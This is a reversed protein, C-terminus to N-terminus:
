EIEAYWENQKLFMPWHRPLKGTGYFDGEIVDFRAAGYVCDALKEDVFVAFNLTYDGPRLGIPNTIKCSVIGNEHWDDKQFFNINSDFRMVRLNNDDFISIVFTLVKHRKSSIYKLKFTPKENCAIKDIRQNSCNEVWMDIVKVLGNGTRDDREALEISQDRPGMSAAIYREIAADTSGAYAIEGDELIICKECLAEIATMNHSVFLITRGDNVVNEMKGLCKQQFALDGVALVEDIILIEPDLHAGVSFALRVKMGSSYRKVPTDIFKEVGSFDVIEDFKRDVETKKMGMITGNLYINERGTLEDHFGTGVELLSAIKGYVKVQGSTPNTVRSLIKLLTSKGAGNRGIIGLVQGKMLEFSVNKLAWLVNRADTSSNTASMYKDDDFKYLSRHTRYNKLPSKVLGYVAEALNKYKEEKLGLRYRKCINEVKLALHNNHM